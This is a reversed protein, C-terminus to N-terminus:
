DEKTKQLFIKKTIFSLDFKTICSNLCRYVFYIWLFIADISRVCTWTYSHFDVDFWNFRQVIRPFQRIIKSDFIKNEGDKDKFEDNTDRINSTYSKKPMITNDEFQIFFTQWNFGHSHLFANFCRIVLIDAIMDYINLRIKNNDGIVYFKLFHQRIFKKVNKARLGSQFESILSISNCARRKNTFFRYEDLGLPVLRDIAEFSFFEIFKKNESIPLVDQIMFDMFNQRSEENFEKCEIITDGHINMYFTDLVFSRRHSPIVEFYGMIAQKFLRFHIETFMLFKQNSVYMKKSSPIVDISKPDSDIPECWEPDDFINSGNKHTIFFSALSELAMVMYIINENYVLRKWQNALCKIQMIFMSINFEDISQKFMLLGMPAFYINRMYDIHKVQNEFIKSDHICIITNCYCTLFWLIQGKTTEYFERKLADIIDKTSSKMPINRVDEIHSRVEKIHEIIKPKQQCDINTNFYQELLRYLGTAFSIFDFDPLLVLTYIDITTADEIDEPYYQSTKQGIWQIGNSCLVKKWPQQM